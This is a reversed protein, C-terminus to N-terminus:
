LHSYCGCKRCIMYRKKGDVVDPHNVPLLEFEGEGECDCHGAGQIRSDPGDFDFSTFPKRKTIANAATALEAPTLPTKSKDKYVKNM